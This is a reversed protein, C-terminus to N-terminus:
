RPVNLVLKNWHNAADLVSLVAGVPEPLDHPSRVVRGNVHTIVDNSELRVCCKPSHPCHPKQMHRVVSNPSVSTIQLGRPHPKVSIGWSNLITQNFIPSIRPTFLPVRNSVGVRSNPPPSTRVVPTPTEPIIPIFMQRPSQEPKPKPEPKPKLQEDVIRAIAHQVSVAGTNKFKEDLKSMMQALEGVQTQIEERSVKGGNGLAETALRRQISRGDEIMQELEKIHDLLSNEQMVVEALESALRKSKSDVLDNSSRVGIRGLDRVLDLRKIALSGAALICADKKGAFFNLKETFDNPLIATPKNKATSRIPPQSRVANPSCGVCVLIGSIVMCQFSNSM